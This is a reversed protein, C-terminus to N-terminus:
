GLHSEDSCCISVFYSTLLGSGLQRMRWCGQAFDRFTVDKGLTVAAKASIPQPIDM